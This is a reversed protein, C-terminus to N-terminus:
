LLDYETLKRRLTNRNIGLLKAATSQNGGARELVFQLMPKEVCKMVMDYVPVPNEGDLDNFYQELTRAVADAIGNNNCSNM